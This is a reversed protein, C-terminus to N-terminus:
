HTLMHKNLVDLRSYGKKCINCLFPKEASHVTKMHRELNYSRENFKKGCVDCTFINRLGHYGLHEQLLFNSAFKKKCLSCNYPKKSSHKREIHIKLNAKKHIYKQCYPCRCKKKPGPRGTDTRPNFNVVEGKSDTYTQSLLPSGSGVNKLLIGAERIAAVTFGTETRPNFMVVEGKSDTYTQSVIPAGSGVNNLLITAERIGAVTFGTDTRPNFKVVEGLSETYTLSSNNEASKKEDGDKKEADKEADMEEQSDDGEEMGEDEEAEKEDSKGQKAAEEALKEEARKEM